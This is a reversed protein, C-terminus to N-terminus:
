QLYVHLVQTRATDSGKRDVIQHPMMEAFVDLLAVLVHDGAVPLVEGAEGVGDIQGHEDFRIQRLANIM